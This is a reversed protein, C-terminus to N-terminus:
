VNNHSGKVYDVFRSVENKQAEDLSEIKEILLFSETTKKDDQFGFLYDLSVGFTQAIKILTGTNPDAKDSEWKQITSPSVEVINALEEQTMRKVTRLQKLKNGIM